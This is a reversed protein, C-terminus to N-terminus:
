TQRNRKYLMAVIPTAIATIIAAIGASNLGRSTLFTGVALGAILLAFAFIQGM